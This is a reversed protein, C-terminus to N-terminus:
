DKLCLDTKLFELVAKCFLSLESSMKLFNMQSSAYHQKLVFVLECKTGYGSNIQAYLQPKNLITVVSIGTQTDFLFFKKFKSAEPLPLEQHSSYHRFCNLIRSNKIAASLQTATFASTFSQESNSYILKCM